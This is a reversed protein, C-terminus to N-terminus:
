ASAVVLTPTCRPINNSRRVPRLRYVRLNRTQFFYPTTLHFSSARGQIAVILVEHINRAGFFSITGATGNDCLFIVRKQSGPPADDRVTAATLVLM